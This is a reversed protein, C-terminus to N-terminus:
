ADGDVLVGADRAFRRVTGHLHELQDRAATFSPGDSGLRADVALQLEGLAAACDPLTELLRVYFEHPTDRRAAEVVDLTPQGEDGASEGSGNRAHAAEFDGLGFHGHASHTIPLARLWQLANALLWGVNGAREQADDGDARPHLEEWYRDCLGAVVRLGLAVGAFGNTRAQAETFWAALRLDKTRSQLLGSCMREAAAWDAYKIGTVWEGQELTPDD